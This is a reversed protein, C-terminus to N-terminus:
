MKEPLRYVRILPGATNKSDARFEALLTGSRFLEMFFRDFGPEEGSRAGYSTTVVYRVGKLHVSKLGESIDVYPGERQAKEVLGPMSIHPRRIRHIFYGGGPHSELMLGYYRARRSGSASTRRYLEEVETKDMVLQPSAHPQDLLIASGAPINSEIWRTAAERTDPLLFGRDSKVSAALGPLVAALFVACVAGRHKFFRSLAELGAAAVLALAPFCALYYRQTGADAKTSMFISYVALPAALFLLLRADTRLMVWAGAILGIAAASWAGAFLFPNGEVMFIMEWRDFLPNGTVMTMYAQQDRLGSVFSNFDLAAYPSGLVFGAAAAAMGAALALPASVNRQRALFHALPFFMLSPLATYQASFALGAFLGSLAYDGTRGGRYIRLACSLSLLSLFFMLSDAKAEHASFVMVPSVALLALGWPFAERERNPALGRETKFFVLLGLCSFFASLLRGALYFNEPHRAFYVGFEATTKLIGFFSWVLYYFGYAAFLVYMWLTPYKFAHPNLDGSGFSVATNIFHPEDANYLFPLGWTIGWLRLLVGASLILPVALRLPAYRWACSFIIKVLRFGDKLFRVKSEGKRKGYPVPEWHVPEGRLCALLTLSSSFSFGECMGPLHPLVWDKRFARLGSNLDPIRKYTFATVLWNILRRSLLKFFQMRPYFISRRQGVAMVAKDLRGALGPIAGAPYTDDADTIVISDYVSALIGDKLSRGYGMRAPHTLVRVAPHSPILGATEDTSGDNVIILEFPLGSNELVRVVELVTKGISEAENCAPVVVSVGKRESRPQTM